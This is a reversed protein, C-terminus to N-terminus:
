RAYIEAEIRPPWALCVGGNASSSEQLAHSIFSDFCERHFSRFLAKRELYNRAEDRDKWCSKRRLASSIPPFYTGMLSIPLVQKSVGLFVRKATNHAHANTHLQSCM